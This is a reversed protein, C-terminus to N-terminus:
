RIVASTQDGKANLSINELCTGCHPNSILFVASFCSFIAFYVKDGSFAKILEEVYVVLLNIEFSVPKNSWENKPAEIQGKRIIQFGHAGIPQADFFAADHIGRKGTM